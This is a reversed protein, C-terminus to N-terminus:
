LCVGVSYLEYEEYTTENYEYTSTVCQGATASFGYQSPNTTISFTGSVVEVQDSEALGRLSGDLQVRTVDYTPAEDGLLAHDVMMQLDLRPSVTLTEEGTAPNGTITANLKRGATANLDITQAVQGGVSVKTQKDGLSINDLSLTNGQYSANVTAGALFIDQSNPDLEDGAIHVTTEGLGLDFKAKQANGDLDVSVVEAAASTFRTAADSDLAIGADAFKISIPRDFSLAVEAHAAGLITLSGTISGSLDANPPAEGELAALAIMADTADDLNVTVALRDHALLISLPEDHNADVQVFFRIADDETAVRIRPQVKEVDAACEADLEETETGDDNYVTQMCLLSAPVKYIGGGLYNADTFLENELKNALEDPNMENAMEAPSGLVLDSSIMSLISGTPLNTTSQTTADKSQTLIYRLDDHIATRVDTPTPPEDSGCAAFTLLSLLPISLRRM